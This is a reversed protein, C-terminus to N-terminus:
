KSFYGLAGGGIGGIAAGWPGFASGMSAGTMAGGLAGKAGGGQSPPPSGYKQGGLAGQGMAISNIRGVQDWPGQQQFNYNAYADNISNQNQQQWFDGVGALRNANSYLNNNLTPAMGSAQLARDSGAGYIQGLLGSAQLQRNREDAYDQALLGSQAGSVERAVKGQALGSGYRGAGSMMSKAQNAANEGLYDLRSQLAPNITGINAGDSTNQLQSLAGSMRPDIGQNNILGETGSYAAQGLTDPRRAMAETMGMADAQMGTYGATPTPTGSGLGIGAGYLGQAGGMAM